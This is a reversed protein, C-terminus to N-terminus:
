APRGLRMNVEDLSFEKPDFDAGEDLGLWELMEEHDEHAPDALTEKLDAYGWPGGCDEPPCAGKGALCRPYAEGPVARRVEELVIDHEWDDGFDYTYSLREGPRTLVRPLRVKRDDSHGLERDPAGYEQWGNSFVHLHCDEWGMARQITEHLQRLTLDSRVALRRWVPPKSVGRLTIKLQYVQTVSTEAPTAATTRAMTAATPERGAMIEAFEKERPHGSNTILEAIGALEAGAAEALMARLLYPPVEDALDDLVMSLADVTLWAPDAPEEDAEEGQSRLWERAHAGFGPRKAWDRWAPEADPGLERALALAALRQSGGAAEAFALLERAAEPVSRASLWPRAVTLAVPPPLVSIAPVLTAAGAQPSPALGQFVVTALLRGLSTLEVTTDGAHLAGFDLLGAVAGDVHVALDAEEDEDEDEDGFIDDLVLPAGPAHLQGCDPCPAAGPEFIEQLAGELQEITRGGTAEFLEHLMTLCLACPDQDLDLVACASQAWSGLVAEPDAPPDPAELARSASLEIFGAAAAATWDRMLEEVDLASRLKPRPLEIGLDQCAQVAEAPRLVGRATLPKGTGVFRALRRARVLAACSLAADALEAARAAASPNTM